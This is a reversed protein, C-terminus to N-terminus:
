PKESDFSTVSFTVEIAESAILPRTEYVWKQTLFKYMLHGGHGRPQQLGNTKKLFHDGNGKLGNSATNRIGM